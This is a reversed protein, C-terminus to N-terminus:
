GPYIDEINGSFFVHPRIKDEQLGYVITAGRGIWSNPFKVTLADRVITRYNPPARLQQFYLSNVNGMEELQPFCYKEMM